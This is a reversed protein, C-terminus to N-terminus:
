EKTVTRTRLLLSAQPHKNSEIYKPIDINLISITDIARSGTGLQRVEKGRTQTNEKRARPRGRARRWWRGWIECQSATSFKVSNDACYNQVYYKFINIGEPENSTVPNNLTNRRTNLTSQISQPSTRSSSQADRRM